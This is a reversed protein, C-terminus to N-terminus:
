RKSTIIMKNGEKEVKMRNLFSMGLLVYKPYDGEIVVGRVNRQKLKGLTVTKLQISWANAVGSATNTKIPQGDLRYQIGLQRADRESMAVSSAGTDILYSVSQGNISGHGRFMGYDDIIIQESITPMQSFHTSVTTGMQYTKREGNIELIASRTDSSIMTIGNKDTEGTKIVSRSGDVNLVVMGQMLAQVEINEIAFLQKAVLLSILFVISTIMKM